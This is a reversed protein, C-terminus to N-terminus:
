CGAKAVLMRIYHNVFVHVLMVLVSQLFRRVGSADIVASLSLLPTVICTNDTGAGLLICLM